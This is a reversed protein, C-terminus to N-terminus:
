MSLFLIEVEYNAVQKILSFEKSNEQEILEFQQEKINQLSKQLQQFDVESIEFLLEKQLSQTVAYATKIEQNFPMHELIEKLGNQQQQLKETLTTPQNQQQIQSSFNKHYKQTLNKSFKKLQQLTKSYM